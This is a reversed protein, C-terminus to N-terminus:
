VGPSEFDFSVTSITLRAMLNSSNPLLAASHREANVQHTVDDHNDPEPDASVQQV